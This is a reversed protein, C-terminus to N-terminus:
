LNAMDQDYSSQVRIPPFQIIIAGTGPEERQTYPGAQVTQTTPTVPGTRGRKNKRPLDNLSGGRALFDFISEGPLPASGPGMTSLTNRKALEEENRRTGMTDMTPSLTPKARFKANASSSALVDPASAKMEALADRAEADKLAALANLKNARIRGIQLAIEREKGILGAAATEAEAIEQQADLRKLQADLGAEEARKRAEAADRLKQIQADATDDDMLGAEKQDNIRKIAAKLSKEEADAQRRKADRLQETKLDNAADLEEQHVRAQLSANKLNAADARKRADRTDKLTQIQKDLQLREAEHEKGKLERKRDELARIQQDMQEVTLGAGIVAAAGGLSATNASNSSVSASGAGIGGLAAAVGGAKGPNLAQQAEQRAAERLLANASLERSQAENERDRRAQMGFDFWGSRPNHWFTSQSRIAEAERQLEAARERLSKHGIQSLFEQGPGTIGADFDPNEADKEMAANQRDYLYKFGEGVAVTAALVLGGRALPSAALRSVLGLLGEMAGAAKGTSQALAEKATAATTAADAVDGIAKGEKGATLAKAAEAADDIKTATSLAKKALSAEDAAAKGSKLADRLAKLDMVGRAINGGAWIAGGTALGALGLGGAVEVGLKVTGPHADTFEKTKDIVTTLGQVLHSADEAFTSGISSKLQNFSDGLTSAQGNITAMQRAMGSSFDKQFGSLLAQIATDANIGENGINQLQEQTLGLERALIRMAPVGREAMQNLEEQSLKGKTKIQGLALLVGNFAETDGGAAAVANGVATMTPILDKGAVGMALLTQAAHASQMFDFPTNKAFDQLEKVKQKAADASGLMTEFGGEISQMDGFAAVASKVGLALGTLAAGSGLSVRGGFESAKETADRLHDLENRAAKVRGLFDNMGEMGGSAVQRLASTTRRADSDLGALASHSAKGAQGLADSVTKASSAISNLGSVTQATGDARVVIHIDPM